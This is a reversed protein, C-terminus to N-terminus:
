RVETDTDIMYDFTDKDMSQVTVQDNIRELRFFAIDSTGSEAFANKASRLCEYSHTTAFVQVNYLKSISDIVKWVQESATYHIGNEIEDILVIGGKIDSIRIIYSLLRSIGEGMLQIALMKQLGIDGHIIPEDNV